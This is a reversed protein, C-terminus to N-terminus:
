LRCQPSPAPSTKSAPVTALIKWGFGKGDRVVKGVYSPQLLQHDAARVTVRGAISNFRLGGLADRVKAPDTSDAARVGAILMQAALYTNAEVYYPRSGFEATWEKVFARNLPNSADVAYNVNALFGVTSRGIADFLPESVLNMGVVQHFRSFLRYQDGQQVFAVADAGYEVAFLGDAGSDLLKAVYPGFDHTGLPAFQMQVVRGGAKALDSTFTKAASHGISYDEALIAWKKVPMGAVYGALATLDMSSSTVSRFANANCDQAILNDDNGTANFSLVGLSDLQANVAQNEPGTMVAGLFGVGDKTAAQRAEQVTRATSGDTEYVRIEMKKGDVGGAANVQRAAFKWTKITDAGFQALAGTSPAILGVRIVHDSASQGRSASSCGLLSGLCLLLTAALTVTPVARTSIM